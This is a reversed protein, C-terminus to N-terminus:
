PHLVPTGMCVSLSRRFARGGYRNASISRFFFAATAAPRGTMLRPMPSGSVGVGANM